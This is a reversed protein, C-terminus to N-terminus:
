TAQCLIYTYYSLASGKMSFFDYVLSVVKFVGQLEGAGATAGVAM